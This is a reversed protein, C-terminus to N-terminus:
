VPSIGQLSNARTRHKVPEFADNAGLNALDFMVSRGPSELLLYDPVIRVHSFLVDMMVPLRRRRHAPGQDPVGAAEGACTQPLLDIKALHRAHGLTVPM